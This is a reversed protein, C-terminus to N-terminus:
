YERRKLILATTEPALVVVSIKFPLSHCNEDSNNTDYGVVLIVHRTTTNGPGHYIGIDATYYWFAIDVGFLAVRAMLVNEDLLQAWKYHCLKGLAM